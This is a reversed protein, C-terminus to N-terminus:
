IEKAKHILPELTLDGQPLPDLNSVWNAFAKPDPAPGAGLSRMTGDQIQWHSTASGDMCSLYYHTPTTAVHQENWEGEQPAEYVVMAYYPERDIRPAPFTILLYFVNDERFPSVQLAEASPTHRKGVAQHGVKEWQAQLLDSGHDSIMLNLFGLQNGAVMSPLVQTGFNVKLPHPEGRKVKVKKEFLRGLM